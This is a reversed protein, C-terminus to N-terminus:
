EKRKSTKQYVTTGIGHVDWFIHRSCSQRNRNIPALRYTWQFFHLQWSNHWDIWHESTKGSFIDIHELQKFTPLNSAKEEHMIIFSSNPPPNQASPNVLSAIQLHWKWGPFHTLLSSCQFHDYSATWNNTLCRKKCGNKVKRREM